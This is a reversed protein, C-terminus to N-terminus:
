SAHFFVLALSFSPDAPDLLTNNQNRLMSTMLLASHIFLTTSSMALREHFELDSM